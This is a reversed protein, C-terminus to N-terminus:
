NGKFDGSLLFIIPYLTIKVLRSVEDNVNRILESSNRSTHFSYPQNLYKKFLDKGWQIQIKYAFNSNYWVSFLAFLTRTLFIILFFLLALNLISRSDYQNIYNNLNFPLNVTEIWEPSFIIKVIPFISGVSILEFLATIVIVLILYVCRLFGVKKLFFLIKNKM